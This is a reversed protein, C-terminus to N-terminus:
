SRFKGGDGVTERWKSYLFSHILEQASQWIKGSFIRPTFKPKFKQLNGLKDRATHFEYRSVSCMGTYTDFM